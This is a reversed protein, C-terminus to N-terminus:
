LSHFRSLMKAIIRCFRRRRRRDGSPWRNVRQLGHQPQVDLWELRGVCKRPISIARNDIMPRPVTQSTMEPRNAVEPKEPVEAGFERITARSASRSRSAFRSRRLLTASGSPRLVDVDRWGLTTPSWDVSIADADFRGRVPPRRGGTGSGASPGLLRWARSSSRPEWFTKDRPWRKRFNSIRSWAVRSIM